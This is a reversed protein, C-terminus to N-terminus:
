HNKPLLYNLVDVIKGDRTYVRPIRRGVICLTEYNITGTLKAVEEVPIELNQNNRGFLIIEDDVDINNVSTADIMCQDMCINGIIPVKKDNAIVSAKGSLVRSLGDAYGVPITAVKTKDATVFTGGYSIPTDKEVWKVQTVSARFEMAPILNLRTKDVEESPYCGYLIIGPRVMDLHMEPYQIVAASNAAHKVPVSLGRAELKECLDMFRAFQLETFARDREDARAFHTFIGEIEINPLQAIELIDDITAERTALDDNYVFGVRGMGTDVKIHIKATKKRKFAAYSIATALSKSFVTAIIDNKVLIDAYEPPTHGLIIIPHSINCNRLQIAEDIFAVGLADAGNDLLTRTVELFGHGYADAKVVALIKAPPQVVRRIESINNAIADLSVQAWARHNVQMQTGGLNAGAARAKAAV